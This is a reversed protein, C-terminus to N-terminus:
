DPMRPVTLYDRIRELRRPGIGPVRLLEDIETFPGEKNRHDIIAQALSEGLGPLSRLDNLSATNINIKDTKQPLGKESYELLHKTQQPPDISSSNIDTRSSKQRRGFHISLSMQHTLGLDNHTFFAYDIDLQKVGMGFGASFRNPNTATGARVALNEFPRIETGFRVEEPHRVDKFIEFNLLITPTPKVSFGTKFSQPM